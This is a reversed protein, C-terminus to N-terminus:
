ATGVTLADLVHAIQCTVQHQLSDGSLSSSLRIDEDHDTLTDGQQTVYDFSVQSPTYRHDEWVFGITNSSGRASRPRPPAPNGVPAFHSNALSAKLLVLYIIQLASSPSGPAKISRERRSPSGWATKSPMSM